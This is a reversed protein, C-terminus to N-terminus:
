TAQHTEAVPLRVVGSVECALQAHGTRFLPAKRVTRYFTIGDRASFVYWLLIMDPMLRATSIM